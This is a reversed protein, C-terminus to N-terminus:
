VTRGYFDEFRVIDDEGLYGGSQIEILELDVNGPNELRHKTGLPIYTSQNESLLIVEDGRTVRATGQVVVWHEARHHHLQLSLARGPKVVIRKVQYRSGSAVGEYSGWPRHVVRHSDTEGRGAHKLQQTIAKVDQALSKPVVMVADATEIIALDCVGVVALLRSDAYLFSDKVNKALVDGYIFNGEADPPHMESVADWAGVDSWGADLPLVIVDNAKEMVAYDISMAPSAKYGIEGLRVFDLDHRVLDMSSSIANAISPAHMTLAEIYTDARFMFMGSNWYYQGSDVYSQAVTQSPKEVFTEVSYGGDDGIQQERKIYGYGTEAHTPAVGFTVMRGSVAYSQAKRVADHFAPVDQIVHDSPLVLLVPAQDDACNRLAWLAAAAIAPATNRSEPELLIEATLGVEQLQEALLFRHAESTVAIPKELHLGNLRLLTNQLLSRSGALSLFQKPYYTRSLPWLRTGSGGCLLVPIVSSVM